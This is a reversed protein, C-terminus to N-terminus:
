STLFNSYHSIVSYYCCTDIESYMQWLNVLICQLCMILITFGKRCHHNHCITDTLINSPNMWSWKTKGYIIENEKSGKTRVMKRCNCSTHFCKCNQFIRSFIKKEKLKLKTVQSILIKTWITKGDCRINNKLVSVMKANYIHSIYILPWSHKFVLEAYIM